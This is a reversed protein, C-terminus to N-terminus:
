RGSGVRCVRGRRVADGGRAGAPMVRRQQGGGQLGSRVLEAAGQGILAGAVQVGAVVALGGALGEAIQGKGALDGALARGGGDMGAVPHLQRHLDLADGGVGDVGIRNAIALELQVEIALLDRLLHRAGAEARKDGSADAEALAKLQVL